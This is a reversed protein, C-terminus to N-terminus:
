SVARKFKAKLKLFDEYTVAFETIRKKPDTTVFYLWEGRVPSLAAEIAAAGPNNIPTPPLGTRVYTNYPGDQQLQATTLQLEKIGLGYNVTSDLQLPMNKALRNLIVRAVKAYDRPAAEGELLSALTMVDHVSLQQARARRELELESAAQRFRAVMLDAIDAATASRKVGYTAPFLYGEPKGNASSPLAAALFSEKVAGADIGFKRAILDYIDNARTGEPIVLKIEDRSEPSLLLKIATAAPIHSAVQYDGPAIYRSEPNAESAQIFAEVSAVVGADKLTRGIASLTDGKEVTVTVAAGQTEAEFDAPGGFLRLVGFSVVGLIVAFGVLLRWVPMRRAPAGDMAFGFQTM